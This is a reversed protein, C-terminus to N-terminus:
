GCLTGIIKTKMAWVSDIVKTGSPLNKQLVVKFVKNALMCQYKNEDEEKWHKGNPGNIAENYSM